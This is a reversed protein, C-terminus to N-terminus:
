SPARQISLAAGRSLPLSVCRYQIAGLYCGRGSGTPSLWADDKDAWRIEIPFHARLPYGPKALERTHWDNLAYLASGTSTYPV